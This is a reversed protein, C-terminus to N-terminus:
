LANAFMKVEFAIVFRLKVCHFQRFSTIKVGLQQM